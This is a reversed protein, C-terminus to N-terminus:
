CAGIVILAASIPFVARYGLMDALSGGSCRGSRSAAFQRPRCSGWDSAWTVKPRRPPWWPIPPPWPEVSPGKCSVSSSSDTAAYRALGIMFALVAGAATARVLMMKRGYRDALAGWIPRSVIMALASGSDFFAMWATARAYDKVGLEQVFYPIFPLYASFGLLTISQAFCLVILNRKWRSM